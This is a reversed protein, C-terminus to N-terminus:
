SSLFMSRPFSMTTHISLSVDHHTAEHSFLAATLPQSLSGSLPLWTPMILETSPLDHRTLEIPQAPHLQCSDESLIWAFRQEM